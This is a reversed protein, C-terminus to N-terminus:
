GSAALMARVAALAGAGDRATVLVWDSGAAEAWAFTLGNDTLVWAKGDGVAEATAEAPVRVADQPAIVALVDGKPGGRDRYQIMGWGKGLNLARVGTPVLGVASLDPVRAGAAVHETLWRALDARANSEFMRIGDAYAANYLGRLAHTVDRAKPPLPARESVLKSVAWVGGTFLLTAVVVFIMGRRMYVQEVSRIRADKQARAEPDMGPPPGAPRRIGMPGPADPDPPRETESM